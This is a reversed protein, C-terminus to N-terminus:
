SVSKKFQSARINNNNGDKDLQIVQWITQCQCQCQSCGLHKLVLHDSLLRALSVSLVQLPRQCDSVNVVQLPRKGWFPQSGSVTQPLAVAEAGNPWVRAIDIIQTYPAMACSVILRVSNLICCAWFFIIKLWNRPQAASGRSQLPWDLSRQQGARHMFTVFWSRCAFQLAWAQCQSQENCGGGSVHVPKIWGHKDIDIVAHNFFLVILGQNLSTVSQVDHLVCMVMETAWRIRSDLAFTLSFLIFVTLSLPILTLGTLSLTVSSFQLSLSLGKATRWTRVKHLILLFMFFGLSAGGILVTMSQLGMVHTAAAWPKRSLFDCKILNVNVLHVTQSTPGPEDHWSAARSKGPFSCHLLACVVWSVLARLDCTVCDGGVWKFSLWGHLGGFSAGKRLWFLCELSKIWGCHKGLVQGFCDLLWHSLLLGLCIPPLDMRSIFDLGGWGFCVFVASM